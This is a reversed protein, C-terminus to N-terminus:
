FAILKITKEELNPIGMRTSYLDLIWMELFLWRLIQFTKVEISELERLHQM